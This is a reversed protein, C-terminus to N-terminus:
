ASRITRTTSATAARSACAARPQGPRRPREVFLIKNDKVNYTLQCGVGCYPCVSKSRSTPCRRARGRAGADARRDPLGARMRRLRRLHVRGDPRGHRVRDQRRRRPLRPRDRRQGARRPLRARLAHVPHLRRPQGGDGPAVPRRAVPARAAFRPKGVSSSARGVRRGRQPAHVRTEPMDSLLLELVLKQSKSPASATPRAGEHRRDARPLVVARARARRRDRGHLLPLQRGHRPRGQLLPAPDRHRRADAIEIITEGARRRSRAATSSSAVRDAGDLQRADEHAAHMAGNM